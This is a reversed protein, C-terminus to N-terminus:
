KELKKKSLTAYDSFPYLSIIDRYIKKAQEPKGLEEWLQGALFLAEPAYDCAPYRDALKIFNDKAQDKKGQKKQVLGLHYLLWCSYKPEPNRKLESKALDEANKYDEAEIFKLIQERADQANGPNEEPNQEIKIVVSKKEKKTKDPEIKVVPLSPLTQSSKQAPAQKTIQPSKGESPHCSQELREIRSLLLDLRAKLDELEKRLELNEKEVRQLKEELEKQKRGALLPLSFLFIFLFILFRVKPNM